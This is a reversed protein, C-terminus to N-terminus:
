QSKHLIRRRLAIYIHLPFLAFVTIFFLIMTHNKYKGEVDNGLLYISFSFGVTGILHIFKLINRLWFSLRLGDLEVVRSCGVVLFISAFFLSGWELM